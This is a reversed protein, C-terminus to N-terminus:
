FGVKWILNIRQIRQVVVLLCRDDVIKFHCVPSSEVTSQKQISPDAGFKSAQCPARHHLGARLHDAQVLDRLSSFLISEILLSFSAVTQQMSISSGQHVSIFLHEDHVLNGYKKSLPFQANLVKDLQLYDHYSIPESAISVSTQWEHNKRSALSGTKPKSNGNFFPCGGGGGSPALKAEDGHGNTVVRHNPYQFDDKGPAKSGPGVLSNLINISEQDSM